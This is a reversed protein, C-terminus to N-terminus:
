KSVSLVVSLFDNAKLSAEGILGGDVDPQSFLEAANAPKASGGYLIRISEVVCANHTFKSFM